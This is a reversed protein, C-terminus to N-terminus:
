AWDGGRHGMVSVNGVLVFGQTDTPVLIMSARRHEPAEPNTVAMCIAFAAGETSSAFWKHGRLVWHDGDRKATTGLWVPNSGPFEPETMTFCSRIEGRVLPLLFREKQDPTGHAMLAEMNGADPAQVNFVYHGIPSKGLEESVHAFELLSLGAGGYEAPVHAAFLGTQRAKERKEKLAGLVSSFGERLFDRELPHIENEVFSRVVARIERVKPTESFDIPM